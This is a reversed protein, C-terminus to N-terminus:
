VFARKHLIGYRGDAWDKLYLSVKLVPAEPADTGFSGMIDEQLEKFAEQQATEAAIDRSVTITLISGPGLPPGGPSSTPLLLSPFELLHGNPGLLIAMGADLKGLTFKEVMKSRKVPSRSPHTTPQVMNVITVDITITDKTQASHKTPYRSDRTQKRLVRDGCKGWM